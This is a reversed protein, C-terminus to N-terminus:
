LKELALRSSRHYFLAAAGWLALAYLYGYALLTWNMPENYMLLNRANILVGAIPTLYAFVETRAGPTTDITYFIGSLWMLALRIINWLHVIDRFSVWVMSLILSSAHVFIVLNFLVLPYLLMDWHPAEPIFLFRFLFFIVLNFAFGFLGALNSAFYVDMHSIQINELLHRKNHYMTMGNNSTEAYYLYHILGVFLFLPFNEERSEFVVKFVTYYVLMQLIPNLLAWLLGLFSGYYRRKFDTKAIFWIREVRINEPISQIIREKGHSWRTM